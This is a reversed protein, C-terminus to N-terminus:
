VLIHCYNCGFSTNTYNVTYFSSVLGFKRFIPRIGAKPDFGQVLMGRLQQEMRQNTPDMMRPRFPDPRALAIRNELSTLERSFILRNARYVRGDDGYLMEDVLEFHEENELKVRIKERHLATDSVHKKYEKPEVFAEECHECRYRPPKALRFEQRAENTIRHVTYTILLRRAEVERLKLHLVDSIHNLTRSREDDNWKDEKSKDEEAFATVASIKPQYRGGKGNNGRFKSSASKDMSMPDAANVGQSDFAVFGSKNPLIKSMLWASLSKKAQQIKM